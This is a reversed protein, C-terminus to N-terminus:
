CPDCESQYTNGKCMRDRNTFYDCISTPTYQCPAYGSVAGGKVINFNSVSVKSLKLLKFNRKKM